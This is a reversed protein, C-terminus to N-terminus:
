AAPIVLQQGPVLSGADVGNAEEIGDVLPRPDADPALRTAIGWLTDGPRVVYTTESVRHMSPEVPLAGRAAALGGLAAVLAVAAARRRRVRTRTM